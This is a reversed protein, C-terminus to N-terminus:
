LGLEHMNFTDMVMLKPSNYEVLAYQVTEFFEQIDPFLFYKLNQGVVLLKQKLYKKM